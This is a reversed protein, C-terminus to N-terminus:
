TQVACLLGEGLVLADLWYQLAQIHISQNKFISSERSTTSGEVLRGAQEGKM